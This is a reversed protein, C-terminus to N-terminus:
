FSRMGRLAHRAVASLEFVVQRSTVRPNLMTKM